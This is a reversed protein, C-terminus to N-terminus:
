VPRATVVAVPATRRRGRQEGLQVHRRRPRPIACREVVRDALSATCSPSPMATATASSPPPSRPEVIWRIAANGARSRSARLARGARPRPACACRCTARHGRCRASARAIRGGLQQRLQRSRPRRAATARPTRAAAVACRRVDDRECALHAVPRDRRTARAEGGVLARPQALRERPRADDVRPATALERALSAASRIASTSAPVRSRRARAPSRRARWARRRASARATARRAGRRM